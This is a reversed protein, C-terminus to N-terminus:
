AAESSKSPEVGALEEITLEQNAHQKSLFAIQRWRKPPIGKVEWEFLLSRSAGLVLGAKEYGGFSEILQTVNM